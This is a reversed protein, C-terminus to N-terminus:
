CVEVPKDLSKELKGSVKKATAERAPGTGSLETIKGCRVRDTLVKKSSERFKKRFKKRGAERKRGTGSLESLIARGRLKTM